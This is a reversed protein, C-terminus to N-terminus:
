QQIFNKLYAFIVKEIQSLTPASVIALAEDVPFVSCWWSILAGALASKGCGNASKVAVRRNNVFADAIEAQKSWLHINLVDAMWAEPDSQYVLAQSKLRMEELARVAIGDFM